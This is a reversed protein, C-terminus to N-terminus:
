ESSTITISMLHLRDGLPQGDGDTVKLNRGLEPSFLALELQYTGPPADPRAAVIQADRVRMGPEWRALPLFGDTPPRDHRGVYRARAEDWLGVFVSLDRRPPALTEWYLRLGESQGPVLSAPPPEWGILRLQGEFIYDLPRVEPPLPGRSVVPGPYIWVYDIGVLRVVFEPTQEQFYRVIQGNPLIRQVQNAYFVVHHASAWPWFGDPLQQNLEITRGIFYPALVSPYWSAVIQQAAGERQSLWRGARDLGEGNGIMLIRQAVPAGGILPSYFSLLDPFHSLFLVAQAIVLAAWGWRPAIRRQARWAAYGGEAAILALTPYVPILYRDFKTEAATMGGIFILLYIVWLGIHRPRHLWRRTSPIVSIALAALAALLTIPSTRILLALPYFGPGPADVVKGMFYLRRQGLEVQTLQHIVKQLVDAPDAWLAPWILWATMAALVGWTSVALTKARVGPSSSGDGRWVLAWTAIVPWLLLAPLKTMVALGGLVGSLAAWRRGHGHLFRLFALLSLAMLNGQMADTTIVRNYGLWFPELILLIAAALAVRRSHISAAWRYILVACLSTVLAFPIRAAIYHDLAPYVDKPLITTALTSPPEGRIAARGVLGAAILWMNTVGPHASGYTSAWDHAQLALLFRAGRRLWEVSDVVIPRGIWLM